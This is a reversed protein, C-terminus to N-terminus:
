KYLCCKLKAWAPRLSRLELSEGAKAERPAPIVPTLCNRAQNKFDSSVIYEYLFIHIIHIDIHIRIHLCEYLFINKQMSWGIMITRNYSMFFLSSKRKKLHLGVRNGPSSHLPTMEAWQLRWRGLELSEGAEAERIAPVIPSCACAM